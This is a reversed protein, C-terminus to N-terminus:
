LKWLNSPRVANDTRGVQLVQSQGRLGRKIDDSLKKKLARDPRVGDRVALSTLTGAPLQAIADGLGTPEREGFLKGWWTAVLGSGRDLTLEWGLPVNSVFRPRLSLTQLSRNARRHFWTWAAPLENEFRDIVLQEVTSAWPSREFWGFLDALPVQEPEFTQCIGLVRARVASASAVLPPTIALQDFRRSLKAIAALSVADVVSLNALNPHALFAAISAIQKTRWPPASFSIAEVTRWERREPHLPQEGYAQGEAIFGRRFVPNALLEDFDGVWAAAHARLLATIRATTKATPPALQLQIFEGRPDGNSILADALVMRPEDPIPDAYVADFLEATSRAAPRATVLLQELAALPREIEPGLAPEDALKRKAFISVVHGSNSRQKDALTQRIVATAEPDRWEILRRLALRWMVIGPNSLYRKARWLEYLAHAIRPDPDFAVLAEIRARAERPFVPWEAALLTPLTAPDKRSAIALWKAERARVATPLEDRPLKASIAVAAAAIRSAPQAAWAATLAAVAARLDGERYRVLADGVTRAPRGAGSSARPKAM